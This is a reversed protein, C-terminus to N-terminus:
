EKLQDLYLWQVLLIGVQRGVEAQMGPPATMVVIDPLLERVVRVLLSMTLAIAVEEAAM